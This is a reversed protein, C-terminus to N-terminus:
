IGKRFFLIGFWFLDISVSVRKDAKIKNWANEMGKSWHIDDIVFISNENSLEACSEFYSITPIERHNGDFFIFDLTTFKKLVSNLISDFNGVVIEVHSLGNESFNDQAKAALNACGEMTIFRSEPYAKKIYSSSVGVCTGFELVNAPSQNKVIRYILEMRSKSHSRSKVINNLPLIITKYSKIGSKSGFDVTEIQDVSSAFKNRNEWLLNYDKYRTKDRLVKNIFDYVFDSHITYRTKSKVLFKIYRYIFLIKSM